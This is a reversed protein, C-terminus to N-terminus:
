NASGYESKTRFRYFQVAKKATEPRLRTYSAHFREIDHKSRSSVQSQVLLIAKTTEWSLGISKALVLLQDAEDNVIAREVVGFPMECMLSIAVVTEDFKHARAFDFLQTESLKGFFKLSEVHSLAWAFSASGERSTTQIRDSAQAVMDQILRVKRPDKAELKHRVSESANKFLNLLHQRPIEPRSLVGFALDSDNQSREVLASYGFESFKASMNAAVSIAVQQNGREVLIDTVAEDLSHRRSIALLHDQSKTRATEILSAQDLRESRSLIPGAVEISEDSALKHIIKPPANPIEALQNGFEARASLDIETLLQGMVDDFLSIQEDSFRACSSTFLQTIARLLEARAAIDKHSIAEELTDILSQRENM